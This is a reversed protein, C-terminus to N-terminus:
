RASNSAERAHRRRKQAGSKERGHLIETTGTKAGAADRDASSQIWVSSLIALRRTPLSGEAAPSSTFRPLTRTCNPVIAQNRPAATREIHLNALRLSEAPRTPNIPLPSSKTMTAESGPALPHIAIEPPM